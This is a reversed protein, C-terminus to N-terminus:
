KIVVKKGSVIYLGKALGDVSGNSNVFRGDITYVNGAKATTEGNVSSIGDTGGNNFIFRINKAASEDGNVTFYGRFAGITGGDVKNLVISETSNLLGYQTGDGAFTDYNGHFTLNGCTLNNIKGTDHGKGDAMDLDGTGTVELTVGEASYLVYPTHAALQKNEIRKFTYVNENQADFEYASIGEPLTIAKPLTTTVYKGAAIDRTYKYGPTGTSIFFNTYVPYGDTIEYQNRAIFWTNAQIYFLNKMETLQAAQEDTVIFMANPNAPALTTIGEAIELGTLDYPLKNIDTLLTNIQEVNTAKGTIVYYQLTGQPEASIMPEMPAAEKKSFYVNAVLVDPYVGDIKDMKLTITHLNVAKSVDIDLSTWKGAETTFPVDAIQSQEFNFKGTSVNVTFLEIHLTTVDNDAPVFDPTWGKFPEKTNGIFLCGAAGIHKFVKGGITLENLVTAKENYAGEWTVNGNYTTTTNSYVPIVIEDESPASPADNEGLAYLQVTKVVDGSTAKVTIYGSATTHLVNNEDLTGNEVEFTVNGNMALGNQDIATVNMQTDQGAVVFLPSVAFTTLEAVSYNLNYVEFEFFTYGYTGQKVGQLKVYKATVVNDLVVTEYEGGPTLKDVVSAVTTWENGDTSVEINYSHAGMNMAGECLMKITNFTQLESWELQFWADDGGGNSGWRTGNNGDIANSAILDGEHYSDTATVTVDEGVPKIALNDQAFATATAIFAAALLLLKKM